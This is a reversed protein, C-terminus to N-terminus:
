DGPKARDPSDYVVATGLAVGHVILPISKGVTVPREPLDMGAFDNKRLPQSEAGQIRVLGFPVLLLGLFLVAIGFTPLARFKHVAM